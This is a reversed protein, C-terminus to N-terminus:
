KEIIGIENKIISRIHYFFQLKKKNNEISFFLEKKIILVVSILMLNIILFWRCLIMFFSQEAIFSFLFLFLIIMLSFLLCFLTSGRYQIENRKELYFDTVIELAERLYDIRNM